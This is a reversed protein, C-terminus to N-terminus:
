RELEVEGVNEHGESDARPDTGTQDVPLGGAQGREPRTDESPRQHEEAYKEEDGDQAAVRQVPRAEDAKRQAEEQVSADCECEGIELRPLCISREHDHEVSSRDPLHSTPRWSRAVPVAAVPETPKDLPPSRTRAPLVAINM